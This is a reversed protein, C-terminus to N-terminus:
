TIVLRAWKPHALAYPCTPMLAKDNCRRMAGTSIWECEYYEEGTALKKVLLLDSCYKETM